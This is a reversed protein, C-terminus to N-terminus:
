ERMYEKEQFGDCEAWNGLCYCDTRHHCYVHDDNEVQFSNQCFLCRSLNQLYEEQSEAMLSVKGHSDYMPKM